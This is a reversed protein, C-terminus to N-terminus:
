RITKYFSNKKELKQELRTLAYGNKVPSNTFIDKGQIGKEYEAIDANIQRLEKSIIAPDKVKLPQGEDDLKGKGYNAECYKYEQLKNVKRQYHINGEEIVPDYQLDGYKILAEQIKPQKWPFKDRDGSVEEMSKRPRDEDNYYRLSSRYDATLAIATFCIIGLDKDELVERFEKIALIGDNDNEIVVLGTKKDLATLYM